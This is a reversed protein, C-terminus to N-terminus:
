AARLKPRQDDIPIPAAPAPTPAPMVITVYPVSAKTKAPDKMWVGSLAAIIALAILSAYLIPRELYGGLRRLFKM